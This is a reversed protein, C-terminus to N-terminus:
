LTLGVIEFPTNANNNSLNGLKGSTGDGWCAVKRTAKIVCTHRDGATIQVADSLNSVAVPTKQIHSANGFTGSGFVGYGFFDDGWCVVGGASKLACGHNLASVVTIADLIGEVPYRAFNVRSSTLPLVTSSGLLGFDDDGWCAVSRTARVVCSFLNNTSVSVANSLPMPPLNSTSTPWDIVNVPVNSNAFIGSASPAAAANGLAGNNGTGWCFAGGDTKVACTNNSGAAISRVDSLGNVTVATNASAGPLGAGNGLQGNENAGWCVVERNATIACSHNHGSAIALMGVLPANSDGVLVFPTSLRTNAGNGLQGQAGQGWCWATGDLKLACTHSFGAAVQSIDQLLGTGGPGKVAVPAYSSTLAAQGLQGQTGAGWCVVTNDAKVACTHSAGASLRKSRDQYPSPESVLRLPKPTERFIFANTAGSNFDVVSISNTSTVASAGPPTFIQPTATIYAQPSTNPFYVADIRPAVTGKVLTTLEPLTPVRWKTSGCLPSSRTLDNLVSAYGVVNTSADIELQTPPVVAGAVFKQPKTTDDFSTYQNNVNSLGVATTKVEWMQNTATDLTCAWENNASGLVPNIPCAFTGERSGDNCIKVYQSAAVNIAFSYGSGVPVLVTKQGASTFTCVQTFGTASNGTTPVCSGDQAVLASGPALNTGVVTFVVAANVTAVLPTVSTVTPTSASSGNGGGCATFLFAPLLLLTGVTSPLRYPQPKM